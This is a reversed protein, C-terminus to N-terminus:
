VADRVQELSLRSAPYLLALKQIEQHAALLSGEVREAIFRLGDDGASQEQRRLRGAIWAPLQALNPPTM